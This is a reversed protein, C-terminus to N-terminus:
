WVAHLLGQALTLSQERDPLGTIARADADLPTDLHGMLHTVALMRAGEMVEAQDADLVSLAWTHIDASLMAHQTEDDAISTMAARILPDEAMHAQWTAVTAGFTERVCGEVANELCFDLLTRQEPVDIRLPEPAVGWHRALAATIQAHRIEDAAAVLAREVLDAPASFRELDRATVVFAHVSAAELYAMHALWAGVASTTARARCAQMGAPRRGAVCGIPFTYTMHVATDSTEIIRCESFFVENEMAVTGQDLLIQECLALCADDSERCDKVMDGYPGRVPDVVVAQQYTPEDYGACCGTALLPATVPLSALVLAQLTNRLRPFRAM